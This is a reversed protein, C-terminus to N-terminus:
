ILRSGVKIKGAGKVIARITAPRATVAIRARTYKFLRKAAPSRVFDRTEERAWAPVPRKFVHRGSGKVWASAPVAGGMSAMLEALEVDDRTVKHWVPVAKRLEFSGYRCYGAAKERYALDTDLWWVCSRQETCLHQGVWHDSFRVVGVVLDWYESGSPSTFDPARCPRTCLSFTARTQDHFNSFDIM